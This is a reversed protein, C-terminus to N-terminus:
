YLNFNSTTLAALFADALADTNFNTLSGIIVSSGVAGSDADAVIYVTTDTTDYYVGVWDLTNNNATEVALEFAAVNAYGTGVADVIISNDAAGAVNVVSLTLASVIGGAVDSADLKFIDGGLGGAADTITIMDAATADVNDGFTFIDVGTGGTFVDLGGDGDLTDNGTGGTFTDVAADAGTIQDNGSGGDVVDAGGGTAIVDNGAGATIIDAQPSGTIDDVGSGGAITIGVGPSAGASFTQTVGTGADGLTVSANNGLSVVTATVALDTGTSDFSAITGTGGTITGLAATDTNDFDGNATVTIGTLTNSTFGGFEVAAGGDLTITLTEVGNATILGETGGMGNTGDSNIDITLADATGAYGNTITIAQYDNDAATNDDADITITSVGTLSQLTQTGTAGASVDIDLKDISVGAMNSTATGTGGIRLVEINEISLASLSSVTPTISLIDRADDGGDISDASTLTTGMTITDRGAGGTYDIDAAGLTVTLNSAVGSLDIADATLANTGITLTRGAAGGSITISGDYTTTGDFDGSGIVITQSANGSVTLDLHELAGNTAIDDITLTGSTSGLSASITATDSTGSGDKAALNLTSGGAAVQASIGALHTASLDNLNFVNAADADNADTVINEVSDFFDMDVTFSTDNAGNDAELELTEVNTISALTTAVISTNAVANATSEFKITDDGDGGDLSDAISIAGSSTNFTDDGAGGTVAIEGQSFNVTLSVEGASEAASITTATTFFSGSTATLDVSTDDAADINIVGSGIFLGDLTSNGSATVNVVEVSTITTTGTAAANDLVINQINTGAKAATTYGVTTTGTGSTNSLKLDAIAGVNTFSTAAGASGFSELTEVGTVGAMNITASTTNTDSIRVTEVGELTVGAVVAAATGTATVAFIDAGDGLKVSDGATITPDSGGVTGVAIDAGTSGVLADIGTTLTFTEGIAPAVADVSAKATDISADDSTVSALAASSIGDTEQTITHYTAVEVKNNFNAASSGFAADDESLAALFSSAEILLDAHTAGGNLLSVAVSIGEALADAGAEPVLNGLWEAAFEEATQFAPYTSTWQDRATLTAAVDALSGGGDIIAVLETLLTTGPAANYATVVLEMIDQRTEATIAM